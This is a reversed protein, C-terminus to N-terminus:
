LKRSAAAAWAGFLVSLGLGVRGYLSEANAGVMSAGAVAFGASLIALSVRRSVLSIVDIFRDFDDGKPFFSGDDTGM